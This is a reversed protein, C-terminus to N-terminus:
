KKIEKEHESLLNIVSITEQFIHIRSIFINESGFIHIFHINLFYMSFVTLTNFIRKNRKVIITLVTVYINSKNKFNQWSCEYKWLKNSNWSFSFYSAFSPFSSFEFLRKFISVRSVDKWWLIKLIDSEKMSHIKDTFYTGLSFRISIRWKKWYSHSSHSISLIAFFIININRDLISKNYLPSYM